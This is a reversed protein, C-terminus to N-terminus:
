FKSHLKLLWSHPVPLLVSVYIFLVSSLFLGSYTFIVSKQYFTVFCDKVSGECIVAKHHFPKFLEIFSHIMGHLAVWSSHTMTSLESLVHNVPPPFALDDWHVQQSFGMFKIFLCFSIVSFSSNGLHSPTWYAISSFCLVVVLLGWFISAAPGFWFHCETTSMDPSSLLIWHQLSCYQMLVQFTLDMFWSLNSMILLSITLTFM